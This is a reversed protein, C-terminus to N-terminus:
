NGELYYVEIVIVTFLAVISGIFLAPIINMSFYTLIGVITVMTIIPIAIFLLVMIAIGISKLLRNM